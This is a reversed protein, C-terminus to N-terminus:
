KPSDSASISRSSLSVAHRILVAFLFGAGGEPPDLLLRFLDDGSRM